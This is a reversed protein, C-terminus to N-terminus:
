IWWRDKEPLNIKGAIIEMTNIIEESSECNMVCGHCCNVDYISNLLKKIQDSLEKFTTYNYKHEMEEQAASGVGFPTM